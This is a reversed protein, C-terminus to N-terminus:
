AEGATEKEPGTQRRIASVAGAAVRQPGDGKQWFHSARADLKVDPIAHVAVRASVGTLLHMMRSIRGSDQAGIRLRMHELTSEWEFLNIRREEGGADRIARKVAADIDGAFNWQRSNKRFSVNLNM